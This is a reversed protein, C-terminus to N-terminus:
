NLEDGNCNHCAHGLAVNEKIVEQKVVFLKKLVSVEEYLLTM